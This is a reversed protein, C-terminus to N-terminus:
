LEMERVRPAWALLRGQLANLGVNLLFMMLVLVLVGTFIGVVDGTELSRGIYYGLGAGGILMEAVICAGIARPLVIKLSALFFPALSPWVVDRVIWVRNAGSIRAVDILGRDVSRIGALIQTFPVYYTALAVMAIKPMYGIGFWFIFLPALAMKPIGISAMVYPEVASTLRASGHLILPAMIGIGGGILAGIVSILLTSKLQNLLTGDLGIQALREFVLIPEAFIRPGLTHSLVHWLLILAFGLGLQTLRVCHKKWSRTRRQDAVVVANAVNAM